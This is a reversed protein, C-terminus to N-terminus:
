RCDLDRGEPVFVKTVAGPWCKEVQFKVDNMEVANSTGVLAPQDNCPSETYKRGAGVFGRSRRRYSGKDGVEAM